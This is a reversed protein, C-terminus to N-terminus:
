LEQTFVRNVLTNIGSKLDEAAVRVEPVIGSRSRLLFEHEGARGTSHLLIFEGLPENDLHFPTKSFARRVSASAMEYNVTLQLGANRLAAPSILYIDESLSQAEAATLPMERLKVIMLHLALAQDYRDRSRGLAAELYTKGAAKRWGIFPLSNNLFNEALYAEYYPLARERSDQAIQDKVRRELVGSSYGRLVDGLTPYELVSDTNRIFLDEINMLEETLIQRAKREYYRSLITNKTRLWLSEFRDIIGTKLRAREHANHARLARALSTLAGAELDTGSAGIKGFWQRRELTQKFHRVAQEPFGTHLDVRGRALHVLARHEEGNRLPYQAICDEFRDIAQNADKYKTQEIYLIALNLSPLVHECGDPLSTARLWRREASDEEFLERYVEGSNNLPTAPQGFKGLAMEGAIAQEFIKLAEARQGSMSLLIGLVNLSGGAEQDNRLGLKASQIAEDMRGLKMLIWARSSPYWSAMYGFSEFEDLAELAGDYDDLNLRAQSLLHLLHSHQQRLVFDLYPPPGYQQEFLELARRAYRLSLRFHGVHVLYYGALLTHTHFNDPDKKLAKLLKSRADLPREEVFLFEAEAILEEASKNDDLDSEEVASFGRDFPDFPDQIQAAVTSLSVTLM